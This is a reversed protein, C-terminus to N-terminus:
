ELKTIMHRKTMEEVQLTKFCQRWIRVGNGCLCLAKPDLNTGITNMLKTHQM